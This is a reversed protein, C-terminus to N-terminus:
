SLEYEFVQKFIPERISTDRSYIAFTGKGVRPRLVSYECIWVAEACTVRIPFTPPRDIYAEFVDVEVNPYLLSMSKSVSVAKITDELVYSKMLFPVTSVYALPRPQNRAFYHNCHDRGNSHHAGFMALGTSSRSYETGPSSTDVYAKSRMKTTATNIAGTYEGSSAVSVAPGRTVLGWNSAVTARAKIIAERADGRVQAIAIKPIWLHGFAVGAAACKAFIRRNM